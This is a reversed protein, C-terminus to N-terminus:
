LDFEFLQHTVEAVHTASDESKIACTSRPKANGKDIEDQVHKQYQTGFVACEELVTKEADKDVEPAGLSTMAIWMTSQEAWAVIQSQLLVLVSLM